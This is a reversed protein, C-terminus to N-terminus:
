CYGLLGRVSVEGALLRMEGQPTDLLLSGDPAVAKAIGTVTQDRLVASVERGLTICLPAYEELIAKIGKQTFLAYYKELQLLIADLLAGRDFVKGSEAFLSTAKQQLEPPFGANNINVGIGVAAFAIRDTEAAMETLIGCIKKGHLVLDNPWKITIELGTKERLAAAAALGAALTLSTVGAPPMDPRLLVSFTLGGSDSAWERGLRGRGSLQSDALFLSGHPAGKAAEAKAWLNTSPVAPAYYIKSTFLGSSLPLLEPALIDPVSLLRYGRRTVAEIRCGQERLKEINKWVAARSIGLLGSIEEGSIFGEAKQLLSLVTPRM